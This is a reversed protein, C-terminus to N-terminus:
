VPPGSSLPGPRRSQGQGGGLRPACQTTWLSLLYLHCISQTFAPPPPRSPPSCALPLCPAPWGWFPIVSLHSHEERTVHSWNSVAFKVFTLSLCLRLRPGMSGILMRTGASIGSQRPPLFNIGGAPAWALGLCSRRSFLVTLSGFRHRGWSPVPTGHPCRSSLSTSVLFGRPPQRPAHPPAPPGRKAAGRSQHGRMRGWM